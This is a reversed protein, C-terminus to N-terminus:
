KMKKFTRALNAQKVTKSDYREPNALVRSAFTQTGYGAKKAKATFAGKKLDAKQIWNKDAM